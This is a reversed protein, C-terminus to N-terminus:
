YGGASGGGSSSGSTTSPAAAGGSAPSGSTTAVTWLFNTGGFSDMEGNGTVNGPSDDVFTYVPLGGFTVQSTGDALKVTGLKSQVASDSSSPAGQPAKLPIWESVCEGTCAVKSGKDMDNTYLAMGTSDVLVTGTGSISQTSVTDGSAAPTAATSGSAATSDSSNDSSGGCAALGLLAPVVAIALIAPYRNRM